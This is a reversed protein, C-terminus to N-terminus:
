IREGLVESVIRTIITKATYKEAECLCRERMEIYKQPNKICDFVIGSLEEPNDFKYSIGNVGNAIMQDCYAWRRSIVPVGSFMADIITGPMGETYFRTPFLLAFYDKLVKVSDSADVCGHYEVDGRYIEQLESFWKECGPQIPGYVDLIATGGGCKENVFRVAEAAEEIGKEPLVRSFTCFRYPFDFTRKLEMKDLPEINKFNPLYSANQVGMEILKDAQIQSEMWNAKFSNLYKKWESHVPLEKVLAGGICDHFIDKKLILGFYYMLRFLVKRGNTAPLFIIKKDLLLAKLLSFILRLKGHNLYYTDVKDVIVKDGLAHILGNYLSKVKVTQGDNFDENGGFHGIIAIRM